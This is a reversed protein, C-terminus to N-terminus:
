TAVIAQITAPTITTRFRFSNNSVNNPHACPSGAGKSRLGQLSNAGARARGDGQARM